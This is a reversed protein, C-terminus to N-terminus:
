SVLWPWVAPVTSFRAAGSSPCRPPASLGASLSRNRCVWCMGQCLHHWQRRGSALCNMKVFEFKGSLYRPRKASSGDALKHSRPSQQRMIRSKKQPLGHVLAAAFWLAPAELRLQKPVESDHCAVRVFREGKVLSKRAHGDVLSESLKQLPRSARRQKSKQM